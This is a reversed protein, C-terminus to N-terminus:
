LIIETPFHRQFDAFTVRQDGWGKSIELPSCEVAESPMELLHDGKPKFYNGQYGILIDWNRERKKKKEM